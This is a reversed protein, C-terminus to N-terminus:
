WIGSFFDRVPFRELFRNVAVGSLSSALFLQIGMGKLESFAPLVDEYLEVQDVAQVELEEVIKQEAPSLARTELLDLLRWFAESGSSHISTEQFLRAAIEDFERAPFEALCGVQEFLVAHIIQM